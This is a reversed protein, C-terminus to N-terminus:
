LYDDEGRMEVVRNEASPVNKRRRMRNLDDRDKRPDRFRSEDCIQVPMMAGCLRGGPYPLAARLVSRCERDRPRIGHVKVQELSLKRGKRCCAKPLAYAGTGRIEHLNDCTGSSDPRFGVHNQVGNPEM